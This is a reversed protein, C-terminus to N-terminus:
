RLSCDLSGTAPDEGPRFPAVPCTTREQEEVARGPRPEIATGIGPEELPDAGVDHGEVSGAVSLRAHMKLSRDRRDGLVGDRNGVCGTPVAKLHDAHAAAARVRKRDAM